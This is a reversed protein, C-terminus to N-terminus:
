RASVQAERRLARAENRLARMWEASPRQLASRGYRQQDFVQLLGVLAQGRAGFRQSVQAALSRPPEHALAELGLPRLAKRLEQAQRQWPDQRHRDWWAWAAGLLALGSLIGILLLALDSWSPSQFGLQKMLDLQQGRSYNLVWQNWRNNLSEWADRMQALFQPNLSNIAGAVVGPAPALNRSRVIRDPAVAATPDARVWGVGEQWYEAWAHAYSQRVVFYGDVPLPDAGQYGTVVRAPVDLARMIFVFAAAFHECFGEKRDLWFEDITARPDAEGYEGPALTYTFGGTRIHQMVARALTPADASAYRPDGGLQEAWALTRPNYGAPLQVNERLSSDRKVPGHNFSTHATANFRLRDFVPRNVSWALDERRFAQLEPPPSAETTAELLPLLPLRLAELTVEYRLAPGQTRLESRPPTYASYSASWTKGDFRTLVPGRFYLSGPPPAADLFRVRMAITDDQAIEAVSGMRMTSSLGTKGVGDQPVGWLPGIRPFLVFLLVMIPAGLLATRLALSSAQRLSPQGVPMHALVLATLLGWVSALMAAAVLLSQSFLFHTLVLFFGLFFVVFADRRARLELTKLGMLVVALTIGPEKGLLTKFSWLTLGAALALVAVLLWRGPLPANSLALQARWLLVVATLLSCWLPINPIHPMVTWAIVGLLFLTDRSERPLNRWSPLTINLAM